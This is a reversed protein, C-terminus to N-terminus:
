ECCDGSSEGVQGAIVEIVEAPGGDCQQSFTFGENTCCGPLVCTVFKHNPLVLGASTHYPPIPEPGCPLAIFVKGSGTVGASELGSCDYNFEAM